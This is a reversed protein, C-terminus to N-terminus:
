SYIYSFVVSVQLLSSWVRIIVTLAAAASSHALFTATGCNAEYYSCYLALSGLENVLHVADYHSVLSTAIRYVEAETFVRRADFAVDQLCM